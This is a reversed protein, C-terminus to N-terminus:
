TDASIGVGHDVSTPGLHDAPGPALHDLPTPSGAPQAVPDPAVAAAVSRDWRQLRITRITAIAAVAAAVGFGLAVLRGRTASHVADILGISVGLSSALLTLVPAAAWGRVLGVLSGLIAVFGITALVQVWARHDPCLTDSSLLGAFTVGVVGILTGVMWTPSATPPRGPGERETYALLPGRKWTTPESSM